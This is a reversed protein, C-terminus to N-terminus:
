EASPLFLQQVGYGDDVFQEEQAQARVFDVDADGRRQRNTL